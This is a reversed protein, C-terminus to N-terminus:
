KKKISIDVGASGLPTDLQVRLPPDGTKEGQELLSLMAIDRNKGRVFEYRFQVQTSSITKAM